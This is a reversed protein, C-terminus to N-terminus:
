NLSVHFLKDREASSGKCGCMGDGIYFKNNKVASLEFLSNQCILTEFM